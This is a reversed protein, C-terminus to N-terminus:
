LKGVSYHLGKALQSSLPVKDKLLVSRAGGIGGVIIVMAAQNM